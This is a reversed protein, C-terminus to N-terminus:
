RLNRRKSLMWRVHMFKPKEQVFNRCLSLNLGLMCLRLNIRLRVQMVKPKYRVVNRCLSLNGGLM